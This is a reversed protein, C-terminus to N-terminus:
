DNFNMIVLKVGGGQKDDKSEVYKLVSDMNKYKQKRYKLNPYQSNSSEEEEDEDSDVSANLARGIKEEAKELASHVDTNDTMLLTKNREKLSQVIEKM